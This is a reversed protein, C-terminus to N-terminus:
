QNSMLKVGKLSYNGGQMSIAMFDLNINNNHFPKNIKNM